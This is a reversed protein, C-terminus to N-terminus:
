KMGPIVIDGKDKEPMPPTVKGATGKGGTFGVGGPGLALGGLAWAGTLLLAVSLALAFRSSNMWSGPKGPEEAPLVTKQGRPAGPWPHPMEARFFAKMLDDLGDNSAPKNEVRNM